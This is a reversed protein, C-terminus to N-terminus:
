IFITGGELTEVEMNKRIHGRKPEGVIATVGNKLKMTRMKKFHKSAEQRLSWFNKMAEARKPAKYKHKRAWAMAKKVSFKSKPFRLTQIRWKPAKKGHKKPSKKGKSKKVRKAKKSKRKPNSSVKLKSKYMFLVALAAAAFGILFTPNQLLSPSAPAAQGMPRRVPSLQSM